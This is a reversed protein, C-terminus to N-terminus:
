KVETFLWGSVSIFEQEDTDWAKFQSNLDTGPKVLLYLDCLAASLHVEQTYGELVARNDGM